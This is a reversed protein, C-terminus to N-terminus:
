NGKLDFDKGKNEGAEIVVTLNTTGASSYKKPLAHTGQGSMEMQIMDMGEGEGPLKAGPKPVFKYVVVKYTGPPVSVMTYEGSEDTIASPGLPSAKTEKGDSFVIKAGAVPAGNQTVKGAVTSGAGGKGSGCGAAVVLVVAFGGLSLLRKLM